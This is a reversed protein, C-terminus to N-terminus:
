QISRVAAREAHSRLWEYRFAPDSNHCHRMSRIAQLTAPAGYTQFLAIWDEDAIDFRNWQQWRQKAIQLSSQQYADDIM